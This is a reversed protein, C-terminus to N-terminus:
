TLVSVKVLLTYSWKLNSRIFTDYAMKRLSINDALFRPEHFVASEGFLQESINNICAGVLINSLEQMFDVQQNSEM